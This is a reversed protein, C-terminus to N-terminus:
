RLPELSRKWPTTCHGDGSSGACPAPDTAPGVVVMLSESAWPLQSRWADIFSRHNKEIRAAMEQSSLRELRARIRARVDDNPAVAYARELQAIALDREGARELLIAGSLSLTDIRFGLEVARQASKAGAVQWTRKDDPPLFQSCEYMLCTAHAGWVDADNPLEETGHALLARLHELEIRSPNTVQMTVLTSAFRYAPRFTPDLTTLTELLQTSHEFRKNHGVHDGYQYLLSAWLVAATADTYGLSMARVYQPPPLPYVDSTQFVKELRARLRTRLGDVGAMAALVAVVAVTSRLKQRM